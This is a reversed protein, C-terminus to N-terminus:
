FPLGDDAIEEYFPEREQSQQRELYYYFGEDVILGDYLINSLEEEEIDVNIIDYTLNLKKICKKQIRRTWADQTIHINGKKDAWDPVGRLEYSITFDTGGNSYDHIGALYGVYDDLLGPEVPKMSEKIVFGYITKYLFGEKYNDTALLLPRSLRVFSVEM